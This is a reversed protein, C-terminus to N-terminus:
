YFHRKFLSEQTFMKGDDYIKKSVARFITGLIIGLLCYSDFGIFPFLCM